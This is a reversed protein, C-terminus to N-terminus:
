KKGTARQQEMKGGICGMGLCGGCLLLTGGFRVLLIVGVAAACGLSGGFFSRFFVSGAGPQQWDRRRSRSPAPDDEDQFDFDAM